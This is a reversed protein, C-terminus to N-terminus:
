LPSLLSLSSFELVGPYDKFFTWVDNDVTVRRLDKYAQTAM